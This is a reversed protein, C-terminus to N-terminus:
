GTKLARAFLLGPLASWPVQPWSGELLSLEAPYLGPLQVVHGPTLCCAFWLLLFGQLSHACKFGLCHWFSKVHNMGMPRRASLVIVLLILSLGQLHLQWPQLGPQGRVLETVKPM